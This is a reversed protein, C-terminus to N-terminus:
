GRRMPLHPIGDWDFEPGCVEFGFQEYWQRLPSQATLEVPGSTRSLAYEFLKAAMGTGRWAPAVCVRGIHWEMESPYVRAVGILTGDEARMRIHVTDKAADIDDIEAYACQQEVVFIDTRLKFLEHAESGSLESLSTASLYM